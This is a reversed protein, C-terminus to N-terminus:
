TYMFRSVFGMLVGGTRFAIQIREAGSGKKVSDWSVSGAMPANTEATANWVKKACEMKAYGVKQVIMGAIAHNKWSVSVM